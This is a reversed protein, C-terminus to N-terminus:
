SGDFRRRSADYLENLAAHTRMQIRAEAQAQEAFVQRRKADNRAATLAGSLVLWAVALVVIVGLVILFVTM